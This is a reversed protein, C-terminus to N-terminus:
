RVHEVFEDLLVPWADSADYDSLDAKVQTAFDYLMMWTDKSIANKVRAEVYVIWQDLLAFHQKLLLKWFEVCMELPLCRQGQDVAFGFTFRYIEKCRTSDRLSERLEPLKARLKQLEDCQLRQMGGVFEERTFGM